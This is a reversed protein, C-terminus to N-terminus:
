LFNLLIPTVSSSPSACEGQCDNRCCQVTGPTDVEIHPDPVGPLYPSVKRFPEYFSLDKEKWINILMFCRPESRKRIFVLTKGHSYSTLQYHKKEKKKNKLNHFHSLVYAPSKPFVSHLSM